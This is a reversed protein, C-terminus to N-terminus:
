GHFVLFTEYYYFGFISFFGLIIIIFLYFLAKETTRIDGKTFFYLIFGLFIFLLVSLVGKGIWHHYFTVKLWNKLPSYLEGVITLTVVLIISSMASISFAELTKLKKQFTEM